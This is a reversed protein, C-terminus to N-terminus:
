DMLVRQALKGIDSIRQVDPLLENSSQGSAFIFGGDRHNGKRWLPSQREVRGISPSQVANPFHGSPYQILLDPLNRAHQGEHNQSPRTISFILNDGGVEDRLDLFEREIADLLDKEPPASL